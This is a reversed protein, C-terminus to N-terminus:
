MLKMRFLALLPFTKLKCVLMVRLGMALIHVLSSFLFSNFIYIYIHVMFLLTDWLPLWNDTWECSDLFIYGIFDVCLKRTEAQCTGEM